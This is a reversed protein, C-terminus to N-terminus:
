KNNQIHQTILTTIRKKEEEKERERERGRGRERRRGREGEEKEGKRRGWLIEEKTFPPSV